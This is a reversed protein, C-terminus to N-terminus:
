YNRVRDDSLATVIRDVMADKPALFRKAQKPQWISRYLETLEDVSREAQGFAQEAAAFAQTALRAIFDGSEEDAVVAIKDEPYLNALEPREVADIASFGAYEFFQGYSPDITISANHRLFVHRSQMSPSLDPLDIIIRTTEVDHRERLYRQLAATALGCCSFRLQLDPGLFETFKMENFLAQGLSAEVGRTAEQLEVVRM